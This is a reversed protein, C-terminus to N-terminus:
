VVSCAKSDQKRSTVNSADDDPINSESKLAENEDEFHVNKEVKNPEQSGHADASNVKARDDDTKEEAIKAPKLEDQGSKIETGFTRKAHDDDTKEEAKKAPKLDDQGRKIEVGFTRKFTELGDEEYLAQQVKKWDQETEHVNLLVRNFSKLDQKNEESLREAIVDAAAKLCFVEDVDVGTMEGIKSVENSPNEGIVKSAWKFDSSSFECPILHVYAPKPPIASVQIPYLIRRSSSRNRFIAINLEEVLENSVLFAPSLLPVIVRAVDLSQVRSFDGAVPENIKLSPINELLLQKLVVACKKDSDAFSLAIDCATNGQPTVQSPTSDSSTVETSEPSAVTQHADVSMVDSAAHSMRLSEKSSESSLDIPTKLVGSRFLFNAKRYDDMVAEITVNSKKLHNLRQALIDDASHSSTGLYFSFM